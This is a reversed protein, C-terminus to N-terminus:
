SRDGLARVEVAQDAADPYAAKITFVLGKTALPGELAIPGMRFEGAQSVAVLQSSVQGSLNLIGALGNNYTVTVILSSGPEATGAVLLVRAIKAGAGPSTVVVPARTKAPEPEVPPQPVPEVAPAASTVPAPEPRAEPELAAAPAPAEEPKPEMKPATPAFALPPLQSPAAADVSILKSAQVPSAELGSLTMYAVLPENIASKGSPVMVQARYCGPVMEKLETRPILGKVQCVVRAGPTGTVDVRMWDRAKPQDPAKYSVSRIVPKVAPLVPTVPEVTATAPPVAKKPMKAIVTFAQSTLPNVRCILQCGPKLDSAKGLNGGDFVVPMGPKLKVSRGDRFFVKGNQVSVVTGKAIAYFAKLSTAPGAASVTAVIRDGEGFESLKAARSDKGTQGRTVSAGAAAKLTVSKDSGDPKFTVSDVTSSIVTGKVTQAALCGGAIVFALM